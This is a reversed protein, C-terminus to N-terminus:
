GPSREMGNVPFATSLASPKMFGNEILSLSIKEGGALAGFWVQM